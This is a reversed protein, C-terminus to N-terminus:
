KRGVCNLSTTGGPESIGTPESTLIVTRNSGMKWGQAAEIVPPSPLPSMIPPNAVRADVWLNDSRLPDIASPTIGGKGSDIFQSAQSNGACTQSLGPASPVIPDPQLGRNPDNGLTTITVIGQAGFTSTATINSSSDSRQTSFGLVNGARIQIRGGQGGAASATIDSNERPVSLILGNPALININGGNGNTAASASIESQNRLLM